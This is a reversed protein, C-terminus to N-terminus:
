LVTLRRMSRLAFLLSFVFWLFVLVINYTLQGLSEDIRPATYHYPAVMSFTESDAVYLSDKMTANNILETNMDRIMDIRYDHASQIFKEQDVLSTGALAMSISRLALVPSLFGILDRQRQQIQFSQRLEEMLKNNIIYDREEVTQMSVGTWYVPLDKISSVGYEELLGLRVKKLHANRSLAIDGEAGELGNWGTDKVNKYFAAYSLTPTLIKSVDSAVRPIIFSAFAWFGVLIVLTSKASKAVASVGLTLLLYTVIYLGYFLCLLWGRIGLEGTTDEGVFSLVLSCILIYPVLILSMAIAVGLLKGWLLQNAGTGLSVLQRLTGSDREGSFSSFGLLILMLPVLLQLILAPTLEGFRSLGGNDQAPRNKAFNTKHAELWITSGVYNSIGIDFFSLPGPAKFAYNGFHAATHPNKDDQNVWQEETTAQSAIQVDSLSQYRNLGAWLSTLLLLAMIAAIWRFRGDRVLCIFEKKAITTIM